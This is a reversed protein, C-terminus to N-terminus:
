PVRGPSPFPQDRFDVACDNTDFRAPFRELSHGFAVGPHAVVGPLHSDGYVVVDVWRGATDLLLVEDGDGRLEWEGEGWLPARALTPVTGDTEYFEFDPPVGYAARFAAASSAIVLVQQPALVTGAPLVYMGEYSDPRQADGITFRSLDIAESTPNGVEVWEQEKSVAYFLETILPYGAPSPLACGRYALPLYVPLPSAAWDHAFLAALYDYAADSQVQLALERNAKSSVESGNISGIHVIGKGGAHVLVMKNHLGLATPDGLRVQFDLGSAASHLYAATAVNENEYDDFTHRNLLIRVRAGRRAAALYAELRPNPDDEPTAGADGWAAHEYFQEVLVTDGAGARALLGLLGDSTRLSNEPSQVVEFAMKGRVVLPSSFAVTYTVWDPEAPPVTGSCLEPVDACTVLDAHHDPDLDAEIVARVREVVGPADTMLYVGRRGATGNAKDDAPMASPNLNETGILALRDDIVIVKAHQYRYRAHSAGAYMFWVNAGALRLQNCIWRQASKIGGAPSGELLISVQVGAALRNLLVDAVARSELTYAEILISSQATGLRAVVEELLHDPAIAVVLGATETVRATAFFRDLDWGPYLVRRGGVPDAPDQAWATVTTTVPGSWPLGTGEDRKRYLIQGEAGFYGGSAWPVVAPGSWGSTDPDGGEYVVADIVQGDPDRLVCAGGDNALGPWSGEMEPVDPDTDDTELDPKFGFQAEFATAKRACWIREGAELQTGPAFTARAQVGPEGLSWGGLELTGSGVNVLRVAEDYDYAAYGDYYIAELLVPAGGPLEEIQTVATAGNDLPNAEGTTTTATLVNAVEGAADAPLRVALEFQVPPVAGSGTPVTGVAWALTGPGPQVVPYPASHWILAAGAPLTDTIWVGDAAVQGANSLTITYTIVAGPPTTAPGSKGARLDATAPPPTVIRGPTPAQRAVFDAATDTDRGAPDRELSSGEPVGACPYGGCDLITRDAGYSLADVASGAADELILRDGDNNLGNGIPSGLVVLTGTFAPYNDYFSTSAAVVAAGGPPLTLAPLVDAAYNDRVRWGALDIPTTLANYLEFWECAADSGQPDYELEHILVAGPATGPLARGTTVATSAVLVLLCLGAAPLLRAAQNAM